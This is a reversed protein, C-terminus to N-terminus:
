NPRAKRGLGYETRGVTRNGGRIPEDTDPYTKYGGHTTCRVLRAYYVQLSGMLDTIDARSQKDDPDLKFGESLRPPKPAIGGGTVLVGSYDIEEEEEEDSEGSEEGSKHLDDSKDKTTKKKKASRLSRTHEM